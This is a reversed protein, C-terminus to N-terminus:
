SDDRRKTIFKNQNNSSKSFWFMIKTKITSNPFLHHICICDIKIICVHFSLTTLKIWDDPQYYMSSRTSSIAVIHINYTHFSVMQRFVIQIKNQTTKHANNNIHEIRIQQKMFSKWKNKCIHIRSIRACSTMALPERSLHTINIFYTKTTVNRVSIYMSIFMFKLYQKYKSKLKCINIWYKNINHSLTSLYSCIGHFKPLCIWQCWQISL